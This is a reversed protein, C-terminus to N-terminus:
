RFDLLSSPDGSRRELIKAAEDLMKMRETWSMGAGGHPFDLAMLTHYDRDQGGYLTSFGDEIADRAEQYDKPDPLAAKLKSLIPVESRTAEIEMAIARLAKAAVSM